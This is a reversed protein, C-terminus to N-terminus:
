DEKVPVLKRSLYVFPTDLLSLVATIAFTACGLEIVMPLDYVGVWAICAFMFANIAQSVLTSGCNRLWLFREKGFRKETISWIKHYLWVDNLQAVVYTAISALCMRPMQTFLVEMSGQAFDGGGPAFALMLQSIIVSATIAFAGVLAARRSARKGYKESLIDTCLFTSSLLVNGLTMQVGFADVVKLLEINMWLSGIVVWGMLGAKGFLKEAVLAASFYVIVTLALLIENM